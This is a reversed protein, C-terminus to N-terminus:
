ASLGGHEALSGAAGRAYAVRGPDARGGVPGRGHGCRPTQCALVPGTMEGAEGAGGRRACGGLPCLVPYVSGPLAAASRSAAARGAPSVLRHLVLVDAASGRRRVATRSRRRASRPRCGGVSSRGSRMGTLWRTLSRAGSRMTGPGPWFGASRVRRRGIVAVIWSPACGSMVPTTLEEGGSRAALIEMAERLSAVAKAVQAQRMTRRADPIDLHTRLHGLLEHKAAEDLAQIAAWVIDASPDAFRLGRPAEEPNPFQTTTAM